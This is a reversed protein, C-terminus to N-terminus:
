AKRTRRRVIVVIVLAILGLFVLWPLAVGLAVLLGAFFAVFSAWGAAIGDFFNDPDPTPAIFESILNVTITSLSVQDAYYRRQSEMSELQAQRDSIATELTILNETDTATSLLALLRDVSASMAKIRADLDQTEMTVDASNLSVEQVAGLARLKDLTATLTSSPIRLTLTASGANGNVPASESRGDVRGGSQEVIRVAEAAADVPKDVTITVYGTTIVQRPSEAISDSVMKDGEVSIMPAGESSMSGGSQDSAGSNATCGALALTALIAAAPFILIRRM